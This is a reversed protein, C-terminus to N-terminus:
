FKGQIEIEMKFRNLQWTLQNTARYRYALFYGQVNFNLFRDTGVTFLQEPEYTPDRNPDDHAGMQIFIQAGLAGDISPWIRAGFKRLESDGLDLGTREIVAEINEGDFDNGAGLQDLESDPYDAMIFFDSTRVFSGSDWRTPDNAWTTTREDWNTELQSSAIAVLGEVVHPTGGSNLGQRGFKLDELSLVLADTPFVEGVAPRCILLENTSKSLALYSNGFNTGDLDGFIERRQKKDVLSQVTTGDHIVLDGDTLCIHQGRWEVVCGRGLLGVTSFAPKNSFVFAGGILQLLYCSSTKYLYFRDLLQRGDILAGPNFSVSREGAQTATSVTWSRPIDGPAAADSWRLLDKIRTGNSFIDMAILFERFPRMANCLDGVPWDPLLEMINATNQDWWYPGDLLSNIVPLQNIVGGTWPTAILTADSLAAPSIDFQNAGDTVGIAQDSAYCWFAQTVSQNPLIFRPQFLLTGYVSLFPAAQRLFGDSSVMNQVINIAENPLEEAPLDSNFDAPRIVPAIDM